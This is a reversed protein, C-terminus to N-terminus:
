KLCAALGSVNSICTRALLSQNPREAAKNPVLASNQSPTSTASGDVASNKSGLCRLDAAVSGPSWEVSRHSSRSTIRWLPMRVEAAALARTSMAVISRLADVISSAISLAM